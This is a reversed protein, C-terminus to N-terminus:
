DEELRLRKGFKSYLIVKLDDLRKKTTNYQNTLEKEKLANKKKLKEVYEKAQEEDTEVFTEGISLKIGEGFTEEIAAEADKLSELIEKTKKLEIDCLKNKTYM